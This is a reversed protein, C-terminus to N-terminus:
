ISDRYEPVNHLQLIPCDDILITRYKITQAICHMANSLYSIVQTNAQRDKRSIGM